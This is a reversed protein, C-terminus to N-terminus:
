PRRAPTARASSPSSPPGHAARAVRRASERRASEFDAMTNINRFLAEDFGSVEAVSVSPFIDVIRHRGSELLRAMPPLCRPGYVAFLPQRFDNAGAPMAVDHSRSAAIVADAAERQPFAIDAALM